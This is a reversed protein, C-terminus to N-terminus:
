LVESHANPKTSFDRESLIFGISLVSIFLIPLFFIGANTDFTAQCLYSVTAARCGFLIGPHATKTAKFQRIFLWGLPLALLVFGVAGTTAITELYDNHARKSMKTNGLLVPKYIHQIYPYTGPGSGVLPHDRIVSQVTQRLENRGNDDLKDESFRQYLSSEMFGAVLIGAVITAIVATRISFLLSLVRPQRMIYLLVSAALGASVSLIAGRSSTNILTYAMATITFFLILSVLRKRRDRMSDILLGIGLSAAMGIYIAYQNKYSFTGRIGDKWPYTWPPIASVFEYEGATIFNCISYFTTIAAGGFIVIVLWMLRHSSTIFTRLAIFLFALTLFKVWEILSAQWYVTLHEADNLGQYAYWFPVKPSVQEIVSSPLPVIYILNYVVWLALLTMAIASNRTIQLKCFLLGFATFLFIIGSALLQEWVLDLGHLWPFAIFVAALFALHGYEEVSSSKM